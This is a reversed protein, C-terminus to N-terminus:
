YKSEKLSMLFFKDSEFVNKILIKKLNLKPDFITNLSLKTKLPIITM